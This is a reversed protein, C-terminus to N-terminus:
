RRKPPRVLDGPRPRAPAPRMTAESWMRRTIHDGMIHQYFRVWTTETRKRGYEQDGAPRNDGEYRGTDSSPVIEDPYHLLHCFMWDIQHLWEHLEMEGNTEGPFPYNTHWPVTVFGAGGVDPISAYTAAVFRAPVGPGKDGNFKVYAFVTDYQKKAILPDTAWRVLHPAPAFPGKGGGALKRLPKDIIAFDPEVRLMGSSYQFVLKGFADISGRIKKEDKPGITKAVEVTKKGDKWSFELHRFIVVLIKWAHAKPSDTNPPVKPRLPAIHARAEIRQKESSVCRDIIREWAELAAPLDRTREAALAKKRCAAADMTKGRPATRTAPTVPAAAARPAKAPQGTPKDAAPAVISLCLVAVAFCMPASLRHVSLFVNNRM